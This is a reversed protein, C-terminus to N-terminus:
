STSYSPKTDGNYYLLVNFKETVELGEIVELEEVVEQGETADAQINVRSKVLVM